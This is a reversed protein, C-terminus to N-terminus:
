CDLYFHECVEVALYGAVYGLPVQSPAGAISPPIFEGFLAYVHEMFNQAVENPTMASRVTHDVIGCHDHRFVPAQM